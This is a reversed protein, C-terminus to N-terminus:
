DLVLRLRQRLFKVKINIPPPLGETVIFCLAKSHFVGQVYTYSSVKWNTLHHQTTSTEQRWWTKGDSFIFIIIFFLSSFYAKTVLLRELHRTSHKWSDPLIGHM